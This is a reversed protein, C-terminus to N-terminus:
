DQRIGYIRRLIRHVPYWRIKRGREGREWAVFDTDNTSKDEIMLKVMNPIAGNSRYNVHVWSYKILIHDKDVQEWDILAYIYGESTKLTSLM